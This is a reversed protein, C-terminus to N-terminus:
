KVSHLYRFGNEEEEGELMNHIDEIMAGLGTTEQFLNKGTCWVHGEKVAKFDKLLPSKDFLEDLSHIEGDITSNYILYDADRASAFFEEMDMNVSSLANDDEADLEEFIYKGGALRIMEAVYDNTKRVNVTGTNNIYFFAVSKDSKESALIKELRETQQRFLDEAEDEKGLLVAYLKIWETRGLPHNEYSSREILVPIGFNELKEKVEPSHYIMTSEVALDCGESLILEYDPANYKGAYLLNGKEMAERAKEIYWGDEQTGSLRLADVGDISCFLDMASTAVLYIKDLPKRLIQLNKDLGEPASKKEPIVLYQESEGITILVYGDQYYDVAFERAFMLEMSHDYTLGPIPTIEHSDTNEEAQVLMRGSFLLCIMMTIFFRCVKKM